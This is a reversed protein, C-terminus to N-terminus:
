YKSRENEKLVKSTIVGILLAWVASSIQFISIDSMAIIFTFISSYYFQDSGFTSHMISTLLSLLSFGAIISIYSSPLSQILPIALWSFLGFLMILLSGVIAALYRKIKPGADQSSCLATTMGGIGAAHGGFFGAITTFIGSVIITMSVPPIFGNERLSSIAVATDNSLIIFLIPISLSVIGVFSFSPAVMEPIILKIEGTNVQIDAFFLSATGLFLSGVFRPIKPSLLPTLFFGLIASLGIVPQAKIAPIVEIVYNMILGALMGNVLPTPLPIILKDFLGTIGVVIILLGSVVYGGVLEPLSYEFSSTGIFAVAGLSHAGILPIKCYITLILSALGGFFYISTVWSVLEIKTLGISNAADIVFIVPGTCALFAAAIGVFVNQVNLKKIINLM